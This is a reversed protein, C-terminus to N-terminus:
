RRDEYWFAADERRKIRAEFGANRMVHFNIRMMEWFTRNEVKRPSTRVWERVIVFRGLRKLARSFHIEEGAYTGEDFGGAAEFAARTCFVFCGAAWRGLNFYILTFVVMFVRVWPPVDQTFAVRAGGGVAGSRLAVLAEKVLAGSVHTDADVFVLMDGSATRAGANRAGAIQRKKVDIVRAGGQAALLATADTSDDNAVVIEYPEGVERAAAHISALTAALYREENYAPVVFTIM